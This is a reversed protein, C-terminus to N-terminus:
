ALLHPDKKQHVQAINRLRINRPLAPTLCNAAFPVPRYDFPINWNTLQKAKVPEECCLAAGAPRANPAVVAGPLFLFGV